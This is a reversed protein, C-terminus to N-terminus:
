DKEFIGWCGKVGPSSSDIGSFGTHGHTMPFHPQQVALRHLKTLDPSLSPSHFGLLLSPGSLQTPSCVGQWRSRLGLVQEYKRSRAVVTSSIDEELKDIIVALAKFIANTPRALTIIRKPCNGESINIRAGSEKCMKKVSQGEKRIISGVEERILGQRIKMEQYLLPLIDDLLDHVLSPKNHVASNFFALTARRVNLDADRLSEMFEGAALQKRFRPLLFPPNVLVLKRICEAVVGWSGEEAGECRRGLAYSAAARMDESPSGLAELLGTKLERQPGPGAVQGVEALSLFALVKVAMSSHPSRADCVLCNATGAAEQPCAAALAAPLLPSHLLQLLEELVPRSVEALSALQAQTVTTLFDVALQAVHMNSEGVLAPLEALVARTTSPPLSHDQSQALTDLAAPTALRLARQNKCLFSALTPLAEALIPEQDLDTARLQALTAASMDGIYPEPDLAQPRDLPWLARVLEQLVLLAEAVIKYFPDAVCAMVPPTPPLGQSAGHGPAGAPLGPLGEPHHLLQLRRGALLHHWLLVIYAGFVDAKVNEEREKFCHILAPALTCHFDPLLDPRSGILAAMCKAAARRVKWSM